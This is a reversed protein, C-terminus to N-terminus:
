ADHRGNFIVQSLGRKAIYKRDGIFRVVDRDKIPDYLARFMRNAYVDYGESTTNIKEFGRYRLRYLSQNM